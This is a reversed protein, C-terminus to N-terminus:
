RWAIPAMAAFLFAEPSAQAFLVVLLAAMQM